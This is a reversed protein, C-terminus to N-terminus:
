QPGPATTALLTKRLADAMKAIKVAANFASKLEPSLTRFEQVTEAIASIAIEAKKMGPLDAGVKEVMMVIPQIIHWNNHVLNYATGLALLIPAM